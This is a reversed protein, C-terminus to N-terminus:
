KGIKFHKYMKDKSSIRYIILNIMLAIFGAVPISVLFLIYFLDGITSKTARQTLEVNLFDDWEKKNM